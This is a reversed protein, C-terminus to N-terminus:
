FQGLCVMLAPVVQIITLLNSDGQDTSTQWLGALESRSAPGQHNLLFHYVIEKYLLGNYLEITLIFIDL